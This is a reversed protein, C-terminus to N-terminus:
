YTNPLLDHYYSWRWAVQPTIIAVIPIGFAIADRMRKPSSCAVFGLATFAILAGDPRTLAALGFVVGAAALRVPRSEAEVVLVFGLLVLSTFLSTELGGTAFAIWDSHVCALLAALPLAVSAQGGLQWRRRARRALLWICGAYAIIGWVITWAEPEFGLRLGVAVWLTWLLNSYGEVREGANFVLGMGRVLNDAYRFSIFADDCVWARRAAGGVACAMALPLLVM